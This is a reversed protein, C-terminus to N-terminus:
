LKAKIDSKWVGTVRAQGQLFGFEEREGGGRIRQVVLGVTWKSLCVGREVFVFTLESLM